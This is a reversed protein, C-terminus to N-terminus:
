SNNSSLFPYPLSPQRQRQLFLLHILLHVGHFTHSCSELSAFEDNISELCIICDDMKGNSNSNDSNSNCNSNSNKKGDNPQKTPKKARSAM